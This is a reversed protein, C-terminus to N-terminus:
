FGRGTTVDFPREEGRSAGRSPRGRGGRGGTEFGLSADPDESLMHTLRPMTTPAASMKTL